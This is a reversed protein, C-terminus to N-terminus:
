SRKGLNETAIVAGMVSAPVFFRTITTKEVHYQADIMM